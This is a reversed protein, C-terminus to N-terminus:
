PSLVCRFGFDGIGLLDRNGCDEYCYKRFNVWSGGWLLMGKTLWDGGRVASRVGWAQTQWDGGKLMYDTTGPYVDVMWEWVNGAMDLAGYPSAFDPYSGVPQVEGTCKGYNAQGCNAGEGWPYAGGNTGRAAKEWEAETPLRSGAWKCYVQAQDWNNVVVPYNEYGAITTRETSTARCAGSEMCRAYMANTVETRDIWFAELTVTHQPKEDSYTESGMIFEGAPVNVMVMGDKSSVQTSGIGQAIVATPNSRPSNFANNLLGGVVLLVSVVVVGILVWLWAPTKRSVEGGSGMGSRPSPAPPSTLTSSEDAKKLEKLSELAAAFVEMDAYPEDPDKNLVKFIVQEVEEPPDTVFDRPRPLPDNAQKLLVVAPTNAANPRRGTVLEFFVVGLAYQDTQPIFKGVWQEPAMYEPTGIGVGTETLNTSPEVELIKAIGFDSLHPEGTRSLLINAPKVDRHIINENHAYELARAMPLLLRTAEIYPMPIGTRAKLSDGELYEMVLNPMSGYEGYDYMMVINPHSLRTQSKAEREFRKPMENVQATGVTDRRIFKIAVQRELRTDFAKYVTAMGGDGLREIIHYRDIDLGSFTSM